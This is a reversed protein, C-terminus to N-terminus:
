GIFGRARLIEGLTPHGQEELKFEVRVAPMNM